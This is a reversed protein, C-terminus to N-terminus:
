PVSTLQVSRVSLIAERRLQEHTLRIKPQSLPQRLQYKVPIALRAIEAEVDPCPWALDVQESAGSCDVEALLRPTGAPLNIM